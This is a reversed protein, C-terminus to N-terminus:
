AAARAQQQHRLLAPQRSLREPSVLRRISDEARLALSQRDDQEQPFVPTCYHLEATLGPAKLLRVIHSVLDDDGIFPALDRGDPTTGYRLAVPQVPCGADLAGQFLRAHFGLVEKGDTTTGEPFIVVSGGARLHPRLKELLPRSGGPGRRIYFTGICKALWGAVPWHQIESKAVFRSCLAAGVLPIDLWSVHNCVILQGGEVPSGHIRFRIGLIRMLRKLWRRAWDDADIRRTFDLNILTALTMGLAIHVLLRLSRLLFLM